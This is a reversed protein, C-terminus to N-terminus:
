LRLPKANELETKAAAEASAPLDLTFECYRGPESAAAIAGGYDRVIGFCISLGLGTGKGIEKTTFFPDFVKALNQPAIGPGNDRITLRCRDGEARSSIDIRPGDEGAFQKEGLADISNELLNVLVAIFPNRGVWIKQGPALDLNLTIHQENLASSVMRLSIKFLEALDMEETVQGGPHTFTRLDSVIENVRRLGDEVDNAIAEAETQLEAPLKRHKRRLVFLGTRAYNLPNLIDHMLGASFRGLSSMKEAQVLQIQTEQIEKNAQELALNQESLKDNTVELQRKNQDLEFNLMFERLRLSRQTWGSIVVFVATVVLFYLNNVWDGLSINDAPGHLTCAVIYMGIVCLSVTLSLDVSWRVIFSVGLLLLNLAAYYTSNAGDAAYIMCCMFFAPNLGVFLCLWFHYRDKFRSHLALLGLFGFGSSTARLAFFEGLNNPYVFCDVLLGAPMLLIVLWCGIKLHRLNTVREYEEYAEFAKPNPPLPLTM